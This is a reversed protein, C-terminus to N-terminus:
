PRSRLEALDALHELPKRRVRSEEHPGCVSRFDCWVCAGEAPAPALHGKEVARDVIELAELGARRTADTIAVVHETFGGAVTCFSLRSEAVMRGTAAEVALSYLVPQLVRGGGIVQQRTARNKGTKHDTVRLVRGGQAEEASEEVLDIAGHLLFRRDIRIPDVTSAPDRAPDPRLGFGLEFHRPVWAAGDRVLQDVWGRLDRAVAAIEDRWVREIPPALREHYEGAVRALVDDLLAATAARAANTVPLAERDRLTGLLRAQVEHVLSGRTLPDLRQLPEPRDPPRLRYIASLLFQYPCVAYRQLASLSYPREGLRAAALAARTGDTVRALGDYQTWKTRDARAWREIVSRRLAANMRLLYQARGRAVQVDRADLLGRLVALDHEQDDIAAAPLSPAPWALTADGADAAAEALTQHDPIEGTAGRMLDLAYFSPVRPRAEVVELRPYSVHHRETAAGAALHLRQREEAGVDARTPLGADLRRRAADPLLPDERAKQPFMREALGPVFV